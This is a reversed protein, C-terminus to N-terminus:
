EKINRNSSIIKVWENRRKYISPYKRIFNFLLKCTLSLPSVYILSLLYRFVPIKYDEHGIYNYFYTLKVRHEIKCLISPVSKNCKSVIGNVNRNYSYLSRKDIYIKKAYYGALLSFLIDNGNPVEEFYLNNQLVFERLIMKNWPSNNCFKIKDLSEQSNNYNSIIENLVFNPISEGTIGDRYESNFYLVDFNLNKYEDLCNFFCDIYQDDSDPFLLWKGKAKSLGINRAKGAGKTDNKDIYIYEVEPRGCEIPKKDADSNDDVVIIQLDDRQPISSLCRDLLDPCNHHPIIFTYTIEKM